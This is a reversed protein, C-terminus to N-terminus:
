PKRRDEEALLHYLPGMLLVTDYKGNPIRKLDRADAQFVDNFHVGCDQAKKRAVDLSAPSLDCLTVDYGSQTLTLAYRGPGGGIDLVAAPPKPLYEKMARLTVAFEMRHVDLRGWELEPQRDYFSQVPNNSHDDTDTPM